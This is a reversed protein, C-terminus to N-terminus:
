RALIRSVSSNKLLNKDRVKSNARRFIAKADFEDRSTFQDLQESGVIGTQFRRAAQVTIYNRATEPLEDFPLLWTIDCEIETVDFIFTHNDKDYLKNGRQVVNLNKDSPDCSLATDPVLIEKPDFLQTKLPFCTDTNFNWGKSQIARSVRDIVQEATVADVVTGGELTNVPSEGVVFLLTNVADLKTTANLQPM